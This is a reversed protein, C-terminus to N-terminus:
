NKIEVYKSLKTGKRIESALSKQTGANKVINEISLNSEKIIDAYKIGFLHYQVYIEGKKASEIMKNLIISLEIENM